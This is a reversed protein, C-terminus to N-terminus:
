PYFLYLRYGAQSTASADLFLTVLKEGNGAIGAVSNAAEAAYEAPPFARRAVVRDSADTLTLELWPWAIAYAARNRITATLQLLGRHAPDAQLDSADISLAATDRLPGVSCGALDCATQLLPRTSPVHAALVDRYEAVAQVGILALLVATAMVYLAKPRERLPKKPKWEFRGSRDLAGIDIPQSIATAGHPAPAHAADNPTNPADKPRDVADKSADAADKSAHMADKAVDVANVADKATDAVDKPADLVDKATDAVDKPADLVDKATDVADKPADPGPVGAAAPADVPQLADASRLTVTPRGAAIEDPMGTDDGLTADLAIRHDNADFVARCHGCRVQGERLALQAPTVRFVTACGPCRTYAYDTVIGRV